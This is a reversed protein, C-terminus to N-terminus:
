PCLCMKDTELSYVASLSVSNRVIRSSHLIFIQVSTESCGKLCRQLFPHTQSTSSVPPAPAKRIGPRWALSQWAKAQGYHQLLLQDNLLSVFASSVARFVPYDLAGQAHRAHCFPPLAKELKKVCARVGNTFDEPSLRKGFGM